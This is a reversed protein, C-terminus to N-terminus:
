LNTQILNYPTIYSGVVLTSGEITLSYTERQVTRSISLADANLNAVAWDPVEFQGDDAATCLFHDSGTLSTTTVSLVVISSPDDGPEWRFEPSLIEESSGGIVVLPGADPIIINSVPPFDAGPVDATLGSPVPLPLSNIGNTEYAIVLSSQSEILEAYSGQPSQITLVQGGSIFTPPTQDAAGVLAGEVAVGNEYRTCRDADDARGQLYQAVTFPEVLRTLTASASVNPSAAQLPVGTLSSNEPTTHVLAIYGVHTLSVRSNTDPTPVDDGTAVDSAGSTEASDEPSVEAVDDSFTVDSSSDSSGSCGALIVISIFVTPVVVTHFRICRM